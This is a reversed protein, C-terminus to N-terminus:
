HVPRGVAQRDAPEKVIKKGFAYINNKGPQEKIKIFNKKELIRINRGITRISVGLNKALLPEGPWFVQNIGIYIKFSIMLCRQIPKLEAWDNEWESKEIMAFPTRKSKTIEVSGSLEKQYNKHSKVQNNFAKEASRSLEKEYDQHFNNKEM